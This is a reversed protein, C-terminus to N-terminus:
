KRKFEHVWVNMKPVWVANKHMSTISNKYAELSEFGEQKANEETVDGLQQEYINVLEYMTDALKFTDGIDGYRNNRRIATKKGTKVKEIMDERTILQNIDLKHENGLTYM